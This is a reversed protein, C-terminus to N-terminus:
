CPKSASSNAGPRWGIVKAPVGVAIAGVPIDKSVVAGAGVIAGDGIKVGGLVTVGAGIWVDNGITTAAKIDPMSRIPTGLAPVSHNSSLIRCQMSILASDGITVTGHGYIITQPGIFVDNGLEIKGGWAEMRVDDEIWCNDGIKVSSLGSLARHTEIEFRQGFKPKKGLV